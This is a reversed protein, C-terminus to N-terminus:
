KGELEMERIEQAVLPLMRRLARASCGDVTAAHEGPAPEAFVDEPYRAAWEDVMAAIAERQERVRAEAAEARKGLSRRRASDAM